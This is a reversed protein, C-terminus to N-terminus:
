GDWPHKSGLAFEPACRRSCFEPVGFINAQIMELTALLAATAKSLGISHGITLPLIATGPSLQHFWLDMPDEMSNCPRHLFDAIIGLIM